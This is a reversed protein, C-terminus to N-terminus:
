KRDVEFTLMAPMLVVYTYWTYFNSMNKLLLLFVFSFIGILYFDRAKYPLYKYNFKTISFLIMVWPIIGILGFAGLRDLFASHGKEPDINDTGILPNELFNDFSVEYLKYRVDVDGEMEGSKRMDKMDEIKEQLEGDTISYAGDLIANMLSDSFLFFPTIVVLLTILRRITKKHNGWVILLSVMCAFFAFLFPMTADGILLLAFIVIVGAWGVFKWIGKATESRIWMILPPILVPLGHLVDYEVLGFKYFELTSTNDGRNAFDQVFRVIEPNVLYMTLTGIMDILIVFLSALILLRKTRQDNSKAFYYAISACSLLTLGDLVEKGETYADGRQYNAYVVFAYLIIFIVIRTTFFRPVIVASVMVMGFCLLVLRYFQPFWGHIVSFTGMIILLVYLVSLISGKKEKVSIM